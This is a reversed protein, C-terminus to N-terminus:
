DMPERRVWHALRQLIPWLQRGHETLIYEVRVPIEHLQERVILDDAELVKLSASLMAPTINKVKKMLDSYRQTGDVYLGCLMGLKRRGGIMRIGRSLPCPAECPCISDCLREEMQKVATEDQRITHFTYCIYM